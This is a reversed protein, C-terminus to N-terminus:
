YLVFLCLQKCEGFFGMLGQRVRSVQPQYSVNIIESVALDVPRNWPPELFFMKVVRQLSLKKNQKLTVVHIRINNLYHLASCREAPSLYNLGFQHQQKLPFFQSFFVLLSNCFESSSSCSIKLEPLPPPLFVLFMWLHCLLSEDPYFQSLINWSANPMMKVCLNAVVSDLAPCNIWISMLSTSKVM